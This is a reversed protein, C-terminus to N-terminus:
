RLANREGQEEYALSQRYERDAQDEKAQDENNIDAPEDSKAVIDEPQLNEPDVSPDHSM